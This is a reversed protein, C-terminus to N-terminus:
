DYSSIDYKKIAHFFTVLNWADNFVFGHTNNKKCFLSFALWHNIKILFELLLSVNCHVRNIKPALVSYMPVRTRTSWGHDFSQLKPQKLKMYKNASNDRGPFLSLLLNVFRARTFNSSDCDFRHLCFHYSLLTHRGLNIRKKKKKKFCRGHWTFKSRNHQSCVNKNCM